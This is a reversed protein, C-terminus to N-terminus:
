WDCPQDCRPQPYLPLRPPPCCDDTPSGVVCDAVIYGDICLDINADFCHDGCLRCARCLRAAARLEVRHRWCEDRRCDLRVRLTQTIESPISRECGDVRVRLLLPVTVALLLVGREPCPLEEYTPEGSACVGILEACDSLECGCPPCLRARACRKAIQGQGILRQILYRGRTQERHCLCDDREM